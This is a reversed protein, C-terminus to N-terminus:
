HKNVTQVKQFYLCVLVPLVSCFCIVKCPITHSHFLSVFIICVSLNNSDFSHIAFHVYILKNALCWWHQINSNTVEFRFWFAFSLSSSPPWARSCRWHICYWTSKFWHILSHVVSSCFTFSLSFWNKLGLEMMIM